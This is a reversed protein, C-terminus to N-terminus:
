DSAQIRIGAIRAEPLLMGTNRPYAFRGSKRCITYAAFAEWMIRSIGPFREVSAAAQYINFTFFRLFLQVKSFFPHIILESMPATQAFNQKVMNLLRVSPETDATVM